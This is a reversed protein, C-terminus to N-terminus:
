LTDQLKVKGWATSMNELKMNYHLSTLDFRKDINNGEVGMLGFLTEFVMDNTFYKNKNKHLISVIDSHTSKYRDSFVFYVPIRAINKVAESKRINNLYFDTGHCFFKELEEGHDAFYMLADVQLDRILRKTLEQMVYDNFLVSNDYANIKSKGDDWQNFQAPYRCSYEAHSGLLHIVYLTKQTEQKRNAFHKLVNNDDVGNKQRMYTDNKSQNLWVSEDAEGCILGAVTNNPQNTVWVVKFGAHQAMEVVTLAEEYKLSNYQNKQTLAYRLAPETQAACTYANNLFIAKKNKVEKNLWPTTDRTYGVVSMHTRTNIEGIVLAYNGSHHSVVNSNDNLLGLRRDRYVNFNKLDDTFETARVFSRVIYSKQLFMLDSLILSCFICGLIFRNVQNDKLESFLRKTLCQGFTYLGLILVLLVIYEKFTFYTSIFELAEQKDTQLIAVITDSSLKTNAVFYYGCIIVSPIM